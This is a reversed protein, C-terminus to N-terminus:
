AVGSSWICNVPIGYTLFHQVQARNKLQLELLFIHLNYPDGRQWFAFHLCSLVFHQSGAVVELMLM